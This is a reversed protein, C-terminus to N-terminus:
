SVLSLFYTTPPPSIGCLPISLSSSPQDSQETDQNSHNYVHKSLICLIRVGVYCRVYEGPRQAGGHLCIYMYSYM